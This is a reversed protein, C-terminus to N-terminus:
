DQAAADSFDERTLLMHRVGNATGADMFGASLHARWASVEGRSIEFDNHLRTVGCGFAKEALLRLAPVAFGMGRYPAYLVIGMDWWDRDPTYHFCVEGLWEGDSQRRVYAYFREPERGIWDAYWDAWSERPFDICGTDPHYGAFDVPWNANYAMTAPDALIRRRFWLDEPRPVYLELERM